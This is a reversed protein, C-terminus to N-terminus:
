AAPTAANFRRHAAAAVASQADDHGMVEGDVL